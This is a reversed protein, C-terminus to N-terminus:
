KDGIRRGLATVIDTEENKPLVQPISTTSGAEALAFHFTGCFRSGLIGWSANETPAAILKGQKLTRTSFLFETGSHEELFNASTVNKM